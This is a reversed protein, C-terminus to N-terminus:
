RIEIGPEGDLAEPMGGARSYRAHQIAELLRSMRLLSEGQRLIMRVTVVAPPATRASIAAADPGAVTSSSETAKAPSAMASAPAIDGEAVTPVALLPVRAVVPSSPAQVQAAAAILIRDSVLSTPISTQATAAIQLVVPAVPCPCPPWANLSLTSLSMPQGSPGRTTTQLLTALLM